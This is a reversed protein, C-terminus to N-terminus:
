CGEAVMPAKRSSRVFDVIMEADNKTMPKNTGTFPGDVGTAKRFEEWNSYSSEVETDFTLTIPFGGFHVLTGAPVIM